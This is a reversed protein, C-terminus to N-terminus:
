QILKAGPNIESPAVGDGLQPDEVCGWKESTLYWLSGKFQMQPLAVRLNQGNQKYKVQADKVITKLDSGLETCKHYKLKWDFAM